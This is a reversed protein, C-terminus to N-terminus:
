RKTDRMSGESLQVTWYVAFVFSSFTESCKTFVRCRWTISIPFFYSSGLSMSIRLLLLLGRQVDCRRTPNTSSLGDVTVQIPSLYPVVAVKRALVATRGMVFAVERQFLVLGDGNGEVVSTPIVEVKEHSTQSPDVPM